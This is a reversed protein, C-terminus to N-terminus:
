KEDKTEIAFFVFGGDRKAVRATLEDLAACKGGKQIPKITSSMRHLRNIEGNKLGIIWWVGDDRGILSNIRRDLYERDEQTIPEKLSGSAGYPSLFCVADSDGLLQKLPFSRDTALASSLESEIAYDGPWRYVHFWTALAFMILVLFAWSIMLLRKQEIYKVRPLVLDQIIAFTLIPAPFYLYVILSDM